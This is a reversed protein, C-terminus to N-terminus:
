KFLLWLTPNWGDSARQFGLFVSNKICVKKLNKGGVAM